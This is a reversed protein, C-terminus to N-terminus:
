GFYGYGLVVGIFLSLFLISGDYILVGIISIM